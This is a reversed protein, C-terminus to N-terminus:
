KESYVIEFDLPQNLLCVRLLPIKFVVSNGKISGGKQSVIRGNVTVTVEIESALVAGPGAEGMAFEIIDLYESAPIDEDVQPALNEFVPNTLFPFLGTFQTYNAKELHFHMKKKGQTSTFSIIDLIDEGVPTLLKEIDSFQFSVKLTQQNPSSIKKVSAGPRANIQKKIEEIEFIDIDEVKDKDSFAEALDLIYYVFVPQLEVTLDSTGSGNLTIAVDQRVQCSTFLLLALLTM